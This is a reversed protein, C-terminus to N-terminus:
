VDQSAPKARRRLWVEYGARVAAVWVVAASYGGVVDSPYHVGLYIRSLGIAAVLLGAVAWVAVRRAPSQLRATLVAAAVGYFACSTFSHGSPFSYGSPEPFNFFAEPRIRHFILKLMQDVVEAGASAMVFLVAALRRGQKRLRWVLVVALGVLFASSGLFTIGRMAFTLRPSAWAHVASRVAADFRLTHGFWVAAAVWAFLLFAASTAFLGAALVRQRNEKLNWNVHGAAGCSNAPGSTQLHFWQFFRV